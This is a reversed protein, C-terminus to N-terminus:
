DTKRYIRPPRTEQGRLWDGLIQDGWIEWLDGPDKTTKGGPMGVKPYVLEQIEFKEKFNKRFQRASRSGTFDNDYGLVVKRCWRRLNTVLVDTVHASMTAIVTPDHRQIPFLDFVGEVLTVSQRRLIEPIAQHIGFLAPEGTEVFFDMYGKRERSVPRFQLGLVEGLATTLPFCYCDELKSGHHSWRVFDDPCDVPPLKRDVHGILFLRIQEDSVGRLNLAETVRDDIGAHAHRVFEDLWKM